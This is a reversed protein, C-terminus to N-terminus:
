KETTHEANLAQKLKKTIMLKGFGILQVVYGKKIHQMDCHCWVVHGVLLVCDLCKVLLQQLSMQNMNM